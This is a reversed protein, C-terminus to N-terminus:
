ISYLLELLYCSNVLKNKEYKFSDSRSFQKMIKRALARSLNTSLVKFDVVKHSIRTDTNNQLCFGFYFGKDAYVIRYVCYFM